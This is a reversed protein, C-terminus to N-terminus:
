PKSKKVAPKAEKWAQEVADWQHTRMFQRTEDRVQQRTM